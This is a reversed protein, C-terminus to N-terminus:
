TKCSLYTHSIRWWPRAMRLLRGLKLWMSRDVRRWVKMMPSRWPCNASRKCMKLETREGRERETENSNFRERDELITERGIVIGIDEIAVEDIATLVGHLHDKKQHDGQHEIRTRDKEVSTAGWEESKESSSSRTWRPFWSSMMTVTRYPNWFSTFLFYGTQRGALEEAVLRTRTKRESVDLGEARDRWLDRWSTVERSTRRRRCICISWWARHCRRGAWDSSVSYEPFADIYSPSSSSTDLLLSIEEKEESTEISTAGCDFDPPLRNVSSSSSSYRCTCPWHRALSFDVSSPSTGKSRKQLSGSGRPRLPQRFFSSRFIAQKKPESM